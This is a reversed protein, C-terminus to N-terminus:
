PAYVIYVALGGIMGVNKFFHVFENDFNSPFTPIVEKSNRDKTKPGIGNKQSNKLGKPTIRDKEGEKDEEWGVTFFDHVVFTVPTLFLLLLIAMEKPYINLVFCVSGTLQAVIAVIFATKSLVPHWVFSPVYRGLQQHVLQSAYIWQLINNVGGLYFLCGLMSRAFFGADCLGGVLLVGYMLSFQAVKQPLEKMKNNVFCENLYIAWPICSFVVVLRLPQKHPVLSSFGAIETAMVILIGLFAFTLATQFLRTSAHRGIALALTRAGAKKDAQMDRVNNANLISEVLCGVPLSFVIANLQPAGTTVASIYGALLPGFCIFVILDGLGPVRYKLALPKATYFM